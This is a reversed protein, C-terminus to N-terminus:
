TIIDSPALAEAEVLLAQKVELDEAVAEIVFGANEVAGALYGTVTIEGLVDDRAEADVLGSTALFDFGEGCRALAPDLAEARRGWLRVSAGGLALSLAIQAGMTGSGLVACIPLDASM